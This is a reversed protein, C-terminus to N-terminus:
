VRASYTNEYRVTSIGVTIKRSIRRQGTNFTTRMPLQMTKGEVYAAQACGLQVSVGLKKLAEQALEALSVRPVPKGSLASPRAKAYVGYGLRVIKGSNISGNLARSIQSPSGMPAFDARLIVEGKRRAISRAMRVKISLGSM